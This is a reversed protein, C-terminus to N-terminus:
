LTLGQRPSYSLQNLEPISKADVLLEARRRGGRLQVLVDTGGALMRARDGKAALAAVADAVTKPAIFEIAEM